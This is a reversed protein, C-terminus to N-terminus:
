KDGKAKPEPAEPKLSRLVNGASSLLTGQDPGTVTIHNIIYILMRYQDETLQYM